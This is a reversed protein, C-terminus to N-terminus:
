LKDAELLSFFDEVAGSTAVFVLRSKTVDPKGTVSVTDTGDIYSLTLQDGNWSYTGTQSFIEPEPPNVTLDTDKFTYVVNGSETFEIELETKYDPDPALIDEGDSIVKTTKWKGILLEEPKPDKKCSSVLAILAIAAFLLIRKM